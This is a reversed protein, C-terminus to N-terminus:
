VVGDGVQGYGPVDALDLGAGRGARLADGFVVAQQPNFRLQPCRRLVGATYKGSECRSKGGSMLSM